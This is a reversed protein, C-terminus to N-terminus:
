PSDWAFGLRGKRYGGAELNGEVRSAVQIQHNGVDLGQREDALNMSEDEVNDSWTRMWGVDRLDVTLSKMDMLRGTEDLTLYDM